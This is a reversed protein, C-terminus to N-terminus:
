QHKVTNQDTLWHSLFYIYNHIFKIRRGDDMVDIGGNFNLPFKIKDFEM